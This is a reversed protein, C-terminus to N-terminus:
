KGYKKLAKIERSSLEVPLNQSEAHYLRLTGCPTANYDVAGEYYIDLFAAVTDDAIEVGDFVYLCYTYLATTTIIPAHPHLRDKRLNPSGDTNDEKVDPTTDTVRLLTVDLIEEGKPPREALSFDSQLAKLTSNNYRLVVQVQRADPIFTCRTIGFYGYNHEGRTVSAQEQTYLPLEEGQEAFAAALAANPSLRKMESPPASSIFVRWCVLGCVGFILVAFLWHLIHGTLWLAFSKRPRSM